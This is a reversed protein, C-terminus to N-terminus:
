DCLGINHWLAYLWDTLKKSLTYKNFLYSSFLYIMYFSPILTCWTILYKWNNPDYIIFGFIKKPPINRMELFDFINRVFDSSKIKYKIKAYNEIFKLDEELELLSYEQKPDKIKDIIYQLLKMIEPEAYRLRIEESTILAQKLDVEFVRKANKEAEKISWVSVKTSGKLIACKYHISNVLNDLLIVTGNKQVEIYPHDRASQLSLRLPFSVGL